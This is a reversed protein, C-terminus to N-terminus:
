HTPQCVMQVPVGVVCVAAPLVCVFACVTCESRM